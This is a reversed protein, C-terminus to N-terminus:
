CQGCCAYLQDNLPESSAPNKQVVFLPHVDPLLFLFALVANKSCLADFRPFFAIDLVVIFTMVIIILRTIIAITRIKTL